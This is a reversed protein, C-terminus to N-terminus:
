GKAIIRKKEKKSYKSISDRIKKQNAKDEKKVKLDLVKKEEEAKEIIRDYMKKYEEIESSYYQNSQAFQTSDIKYKQFIYKKPDVNNNPLIKYDHGKIAQLLALDYLINEMTAKEILNKPKEIAKESCSGLALILLLCIFKPM